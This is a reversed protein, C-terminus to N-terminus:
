TEFEQVENNSAWYHQSLWEYRVTRNFPEVYANQKPKGPHIHQVHIQHKAEWEM